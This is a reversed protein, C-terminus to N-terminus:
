VVAFSMLMNAGMEKLHSAMMEMEVSALTTKFAISRVQYKQVCKDTGQRLDLDVLQVWM